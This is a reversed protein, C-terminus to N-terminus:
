DGQGCESLPCRDARSGMRFPKTRDLALGDAPPVGGDTRRFLDASEPGSAQPFHGLDESRRSHRKKKKKKKKHRHLDADSYTGSLDSDPPHRSDRTRHKDKSKKKKKSKKHKKVKPEELPGKPTNRWAPKEGHSDSDELSDHRRKRPKTNEPVRFRDSFDCSGEPGLAMKEHPYKDPYLTPGTRPSGFHRREKDCAKRGRYPDKHPRSYEYEYERDGHFAKWERMERPVYGAYRDHYYRCKGWRAREPYYKERAWMHEGEPHYRGWDQDSSGRGRCLQHSLRGLSRRESPSGRDGHSGSCHEPRHREQKPRERESGHRKKHYHDETKSRSERAHEGSSSRDRRNRYHGRDVKRLSSIREKAPSPDQGRHGAQNEESSEGPSPETGGEAPGEAPKDLLSAPPGEVRPGTCQLPAEPAAPTGMDRDRVMYVVLQHGCDVAEPCASPTPSLQGVCAGPVLPRLPSLSSTGRSEQGACLDDTTRGPDCTPPLRDEAACPSADTAMPEASEPAEKTASVPDPPLLAMKLQSSLCAAPEPPERPERPVPPSSSAELEAYSDGLPSEEAQGPSAEERSSKERSGLKFTELIQDEPLPPLPAPM